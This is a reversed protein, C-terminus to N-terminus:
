GALTACQGTAQGGVTNASGPPFGGSVTPALGSCEAPDRPPDLPTTQRATRASPRQGLTGVAGVQGAGAVVAGDADPIRNGRDTDPDLPDDGGVVEAAVAHGDPIWARVLDEM